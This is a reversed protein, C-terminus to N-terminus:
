PPPPVNSSAIFNAYWSPSYITDLYREGRDAFITAVVVDDAPVNTRFHRKVAALVSGSSGGAFIGYESYLERCAKVTTAEDILIVQDIKATEILAPRISSGIGPIFRPRPTDGFIASGVSDVAIVQVKPRLEKVRRSVGAITGGSSVGLFVYDLRPAAACMEEALTTSYAEANLPNAYQNIWYTDPERALIEQVKALRTKLFGGADDPETVRILEAHSARLIAENAPTIRPDIVCCFQLGRYHAYAALAIGFNGSSSEILRSGRKLRGTSLLRDIIFAAARDKVSGTPNTFELHAQIHVRPLNPLDLCIVPTGGIAELLHSRTKTM